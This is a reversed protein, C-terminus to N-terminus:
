LLALLTRLESMEHRIAVLHVRERELEGQEKRSQPLAEIEAIRRRVAQEM